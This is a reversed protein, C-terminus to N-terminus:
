SRIAYGVALVTGLFMAAPLTQPTIRRSHLVSGVGGIMSGGAFGTVAGKLKRSWNIPPQDQQGQTNSYQRSM